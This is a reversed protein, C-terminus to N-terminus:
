SGRRALGRGAAAFGTAVREAQVASGALLMLADARTPEARVILARALAPASLIGVAVVCAVAALGAGVRKV